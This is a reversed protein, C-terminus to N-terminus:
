SGTPKSGCTAATMQASRQRYPRQGTSSLAIITGILAFMLILKSYAIIFATM